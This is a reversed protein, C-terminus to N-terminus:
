QYDSFDILTLKAKKVGEFPNASVDFPFESPAAPAQRAKLLKKIEGLEKQMAKQGDKLAEIEKKLDTMEQSSPAQAWSNAHLLMVLLSGLFIRFSKESM